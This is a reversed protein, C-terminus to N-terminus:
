FPFFASVFFRALWGIKNADAVAGDGTYMITADAIKTSDISNDPNIDSPRVLGSVRVYENGQNLSIRKEGRIKLNGNPLVDVVHVSISGQLRNNQNSESEGSFDHGAGLTSNFNYGLVSPDEKGLITPVSVSASTDKTIATDSEKSADTQEVLNILLIDGIRRARIDEFLRMDYGAQYISGTNQTPTQYAIPEAPAFSPDHKPKSMQDVAACGFLLSMSLMAILIRM